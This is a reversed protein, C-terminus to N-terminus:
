YGYILDYAIQPVFQGAHHRRRHRLRRRVRRPRSGCCCRPAAASRTPAASSRATPTAGSATSGNGNRSTDIVFPRTYGYDPASRPTSRRRRLRREARHHLLELREALLRPRPRPRRRQPLQGDTSASLWGPNGADLYVWTDPAQENFQTIANNLLGDRDSIESSTMCSEDAVADPELIVLAPRDGIGGAFASIWTDYAADSAAGLGAGSACIDLDPINYAVLVPLKDHAAAAGGRVGRHGRRHRRELQRVVRGHPKDGIDRRDRGRARRLPQGRGVAAAPNDPDV